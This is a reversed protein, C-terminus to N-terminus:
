EGQLLETAQSGGEACNPQTQTWQLSTQTQTQPFVTFCGEQSQSPQKAIVLYNPHEIQMARVADM